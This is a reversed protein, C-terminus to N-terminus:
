AHAPEPFKMATLLKEFRPEGRLADLRPHVRAWVLARDRVKVGRELWDM